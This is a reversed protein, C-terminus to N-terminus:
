YEGVVCVSEGDLAVQGPIITMEMGEVPGGRGTLWILTDGSKSRDDVDTVLGASEWHARVKDVLEAPDPDTEGAWYRADVFNVGAEDNSLSCPDPELEYAADWGAEDLGMVARTSAMLDVLAQKSHEPTM